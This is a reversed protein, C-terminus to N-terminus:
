QYFKNKKLNVATDTSNHLWAGALSRHVGLRAITVARLASSLNTRARLENIRADLLALYDGIGRRYRRFQSDASASASELSERIAGLRQLQSEHEVLASSAEKFAILVTKEYTAAAQEYQAWAARVGANLAGANFVPALLSGGFLWFNQSTNVLDVLDSSQTGGSATLSISPFREARAVGIRQRASELRAGSAVIDPRSRLLDSPLGIPIEGPIALDNHTGKLLGDIEVPVTGLLLALRTIAEYHASELVPLSARLDDRSQRVTYLEFSTVLGRRYRDETIEAREGILEVNERALELQRARDRIETYTSITEAIVGIQATQFDASTAVFEGIAARSAARAKGWFDLEYVLGLSASYTTVDFRDPFNPISESFRGTAGTNTPTNQRNGDVGAQIGPYLASRSIRYTEQIQLVRASAVRLDLNRVIASDILVNLLPDGFERWWNVFAAPKVQTEVGDYTEPLNSEPDPAAMHPTMTCSSLSMSIVFGTLILRNRKLVM